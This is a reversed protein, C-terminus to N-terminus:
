GILVKINKLIDILVPIIGCETAMRSYGTDVSKISPRLAVVTLLRVAYRVITAAQYTDGSMIATSLMRVVSPLVGASVAQDIAHHAFEEVVQSTSVHGCRDATFV